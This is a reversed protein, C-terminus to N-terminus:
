LLQIRYYRSAHHGNLIFLNKIFGNQAKHWPDSVYVKVKEFSEAEYNRESFVKEGNLKVSYTYVGSELQQSVEVNTWQYLALPNSEFSNSGNIPTEIYLQGNGREHFWIGPIRDGINGINSGTTFHIM